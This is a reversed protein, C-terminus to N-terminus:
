PFSQSKMVGFCLLAIEGLSGINCCWSLWLTHCGWWVNPGASLNRHVCGVCSDLKLPECTICCKGVELLQTHLSWSRPLRYVILRSFATSSQRLSRSHSFIAEHLHEGIGRTGSFSQTSYVSEAKLFLWRLVWIPLPVSSCHGVQCELTCLANRMCTPDARSVILLFPHM